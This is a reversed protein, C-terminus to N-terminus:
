KKKKRKSVVVNAIENKKQEEKKREKIQIEERKRNSENYEDSIGSIADELTDNIGLCGFTHFFVVIILERM